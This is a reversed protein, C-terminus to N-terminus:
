TSRNPTPWSTWVSAPPTANRATAPPAHAPRTRSTSSSFGTANLTEADKIATLKARHRAADAEAIDLQAAVDEPTTTAM